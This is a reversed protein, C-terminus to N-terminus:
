TPSKLEPSSLWANMHSASELQRAKRLLEERERSGHPLREAQQKYTEAQQHWKEEISPKRM